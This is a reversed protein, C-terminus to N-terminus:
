KVYGKELRVQQKLTAVLTTLQKEKKAGYDIKELYHEAKQKYIACESKYTNVDRYLRAAVIDQAGYHTKLKAIEETM